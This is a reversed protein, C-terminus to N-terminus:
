ALPDGSTTLIAGNLHPIPGLFDEDVHRQFISLGMLNSYNASRRGICKVNRSWGSHNSLTWFRRMPPFFTVRESVGSAGSQEAGSWEAGIWEQEAGSRERARERTLFHCRLFSLWM